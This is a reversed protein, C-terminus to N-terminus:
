KKQVESVGNRIAFLKSMTAVYITQNAATVTASIPEGFEVQNLIKKEKSAAFVWFQGSRTGLYVKGDAVFPSAWVESQIDQTWYNKGTEADVCHMKRGCDSIFVLGDVLVPTSMVHKELPYSWLEKPSGGELKGRLDICKLWAANKGWFIDGGGAVYLRSEHLMPMGYINSPGERRNTNFRHVADKPGEPDFDFQWIKKLTQVENPPSTKKIAEFAYIIGNGGAFFVLKQGNIVGLSPSSWTSHFINPAIGERERAILRGTMKEFVLLSPADPGRIVKHTSDVGTGTNVYIFPGDILVSTHSGDHPWIGAEAKMDFSWLIDADLPGLPVPPKAEPSQHRVEDVFPGDNGNALGRADLCMVEHRNSVLYVREGEITAPSSIGTKPWDQYPDGERKPVILQWLLAHTKEDFCLMVGRDGDHKADRPQGNNTGIFIRGGAIIPTSHTETGLPISWAINQGTKPNFVSPLNKEHSVLNRNNSEGWFVPAAKTSFIFGIGLLVLQWRSSIFSKTM